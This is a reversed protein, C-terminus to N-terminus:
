GTPCSLGSRRIRASHSRLTTTASRMGRQPSSTTRPSASRARTSTAATTRSLLAMDTDGSRKPEISRGLQQGELMELLNNKTLPQLKGNAWFVDLPQLKFNDIIIPISAKDDLQIQGVGTGDEADIRNFNVQIKADTIWPYAQHLFMTINEPWQKPDRELKINAEKDIENKTTLFLPEM